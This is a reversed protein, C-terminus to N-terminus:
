SALRRRVLTFVQKAFLYECEGINKGVSVNDTLSLTQMGRHKYLGTHMSKEMNYAGAPRYSYRNGCQDTLSLTQMGRHKYLGTHICTEM